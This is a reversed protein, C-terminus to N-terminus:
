NPIGAPAFDPSAPHRPNPSTALGVTGRATIFQVAFNTGPNPHITM